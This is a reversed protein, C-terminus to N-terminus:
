CVVEESYQGLVSCTLYMYMYLTCGEKEGNRRGMWKKKERRERERREGEKEGGERKTGGEKKRNWGGERDPGVM